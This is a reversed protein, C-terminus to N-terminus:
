AHASSGAHSARRAKGKSERRDRLEIARAQIAAEDRMLADRQEPTLNHLNAMYTELKRQAADIQRAAVERKVGRVFRRTGSAINKFGNLTTDEALRLLTSPRERTIICAVGIAILKYM